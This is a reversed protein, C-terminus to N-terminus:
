NMPFAAEVHSRDFHPLLNLVIAKNQPDGVYPAMALAVEGKFFNCGSCAEAVHACTLSARDMCKALELAVSPQDMCFPVSALIRRLAAPSLASAFDQHQTAWALVVTRKDDVSSTALQQVLGECLVENRPATDASSASFALTAVPLARNVTASNNCHGDFSLVHPQYHQDEKRVAASDEHRDFFQTAAGAAVAVGEASASMCPVARALPSVVVAAFALPTPVDKKSSNSSDVSSLKNTCILFPNPEAAIQKIVGRDEDAARQLAEASPPAASIIRCETLLHFHFHTVFIINM